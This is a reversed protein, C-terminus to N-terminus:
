LPIGLFCLPRQFDRAKDWAEFEYIPKLLDM